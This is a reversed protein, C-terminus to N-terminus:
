DLNAHCMPHQLVATGISVINPSGAIAHQMEFGFLRFDVQSALDQFSCPADDTENMPLCCRPLALSRLQYESKLSNERLARDGRSEVSFQLFQKLRKWQCYNCCHWVLIMFTVRGRAPFLKDVSLDLRALEIIWRLRRRLVAGAPRLRSAFAKASICAAKAPTSARAGLPSGLAFSRARM